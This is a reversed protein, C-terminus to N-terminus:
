LINEGVHLQAIARQLFYNLFAERPTAGSAKIDKRECYWINNSKYLKPRPM